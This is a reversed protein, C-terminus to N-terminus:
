GILFKEKYKTERVDGVIRAPNGCVVKYDPVDKVVVSGMGIVCWKGITIGPGIVVKAGISTNEKVITKEPTWAHSIAKAATPYKDNTFTVRPGIFVNDEITVGDPVFLYSQIRCNSGIKVDPKIESYSGIHTNEGIIIPHGEFGYVNCYHWIKSNKGLTTWKVISYHGIQTGKELTCSEIIPQM